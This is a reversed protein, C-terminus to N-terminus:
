GGLKILYDHEAVNARSWEKILYFKVSMSSAGQRMFIFLYDSDHIEHKEKKHIDKINKVVYKQM